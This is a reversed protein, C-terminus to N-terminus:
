AATTPKFRWQALLMAALLLAAGSWGRLGIQENLVLWGGLASFLGESSYIVAAHSALADRQVIAQLTYAVGISLLGGWAIAGAAQELGSWTISEQALAVALSLLGAVLYQLVSLRLPDHRRTLRGVLLVHVAWLLAGGLQLWDGAAIGADPKVSLFYLGATALAVAIWAQRTIHTGGLRLLVPVLVVYLGTIFGANSVSTGLLGVQQLNIACFLVLGLLLGAGWLGQSPQVPLSAFPGGRWRWLPAILAVGLLMRAGTYTFPGVGDMGLQQAVFTSGWIAATLVMLLDAKLSSRQM